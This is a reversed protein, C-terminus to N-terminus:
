SANQRSVFCSDIKRAEKLVWLVTVRREKKQQQRVRRPSKQMVKLDFGYAFRRVLRNRGFQRYQCVYGVILCLVPALRVVWGGLYREKFRFNQGHVTLIQEKRRVLNTQEDYCGNVHNYVCAKCLKVSSAGNIRQIVRRKEGTGFDCRLRGLYPDFRSFQPGADFRRQYAIGARAIRRCLQGPPVLAGYQFTLKIKKAKKQERGNSIIGCFRTCNCRTANSAYLVLRFGCKECRHADYHPLKAYVRNSIRLMKLQLKGSNASICYSILNLLPYFKYQRKRKVTTTFAAIFQKSKKWGKWGILVSQINLYWLYQSIKSRRYFFLISRISIKQIYRFFSNIM